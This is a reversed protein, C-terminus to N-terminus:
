NSHANTPLQRSDNQEDAAYLSLHHDRKELASEFLQREAVDGHYSQLYLNQCCLILLVLASVLSLIRVTFRAPQPPRIM